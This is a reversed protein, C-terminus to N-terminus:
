PTNGKLLLSPAAKQQNLHLCRLLVCPLQVQSLRPPALISKCMISM